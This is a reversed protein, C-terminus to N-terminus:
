CKKPGSHTVMVQSIHYKILTQAILFIYQAWDVCVCCLCLWDNSPNRIGRLFFAIVLSHRCCPLCLRSRNANNTSSRPASQAGGVGGQLGGKCGATLPSMRSCSHRLHWCSRCISTCSSSRELAERRLALDAEPNVRRLSAVSLSNTTWLTRRTKKLGLARSAGAYCGAGQWVKQRTPVLWFHCCLM